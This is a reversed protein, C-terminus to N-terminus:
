FAISLSVGGYVDNTDEITNLQERADLAFNAAIYPTLTISDTIKYPASIATRVHTWGNDVGSIPEYTYYEVGYGIQVVPVLSLKETIKITYDVGAEFYFADIKFDYWGGLYLNAAGVPIAVTLGLDTANSITSDSVNPFGFTSGGVSGSFTDFFQYSTFVLGFKAFGADYNLSAFLDLESYDLDAGVDTDVTQTYLGGFGFSLKDSIPVTFNLGGWLNNNSFWLGRFYYGSDYGISASGTIWPDEPPPTVPAKPSKGSGAMAGTALLALTSLTLLAKM